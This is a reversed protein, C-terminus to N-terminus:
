LRPDSSDFFSQEIEKDLAKDIEDFNDPLPGYKDALWGLEIPKRKSEIESPIIRAVVKDRRMLEVTEGKEVMAVIKSLNTKAEHMKFSKM